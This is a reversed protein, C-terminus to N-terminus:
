PSKKSLSIAINSMLLHYGSNSGSSRKIKEPWISPVRLSNLTLLSIRTESLAASLPSKLNLARKSLSRGNKKAALILPKSVWYSDKFLSIGLIKPSLKGTEKALSPLKVKLPSAM